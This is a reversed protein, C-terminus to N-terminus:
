RCLKWPKRFDGFPATQRSDAKWNVLPTVCALLGQAQLERKRAEAAERGTITERVARPKSDGPKYFRFDQSSVVFTDPAAFAMKKNMKM